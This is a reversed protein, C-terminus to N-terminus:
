GRSEALSRELAAVRSFLLEYEGPPPETTELRLGLAIRELCRVAVHGSAYGVLAKGRADSRLSVRPHDYTKPDRVCVSIDVTGLDVVNSLSESGTRISDETIGRRGSPRPHEVVLEVEGGLVESFSRECAQKLEGHRLMKPSYYLMADM